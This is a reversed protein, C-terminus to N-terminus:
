LTSSTTICPMYCKIRDMDEGVGNALHVVDSFLTVMGFREGLYVKSRVMKWDLDIGM